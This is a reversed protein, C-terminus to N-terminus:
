FVNWCMGPLGRPVVGHVAAESGSQDRCWGVRYCPEGKGCGRVQAPALISFDDVSILSHTGDRPRGTLGIKQSM